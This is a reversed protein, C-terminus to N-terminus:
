VLKAKKKKILIISTVVGAIIVIVGIAIVVLFVNSNTMDIDGQIELYSSIEEQKIEGCITCTSTKIASETEPNEQTIVGESFRHGTHSLIDSESENCVKCLRIAIGDETCTAQKETQWADFNHGKFLITTTESESCIICKRINKGNKTCTVAEAIEWESFSHSHGDEALKAITKTEYKSCGNNTCNRQAEGTAKTTPEKITKWEGFVHGTQPINTLDKKSGCTLCHHSKSGTSTCSPEIDVTWESNYNHGKSSLIKEEVSSCIACTKIQKGDITCTVEKTTKWEGYSHGTAKIVTISSKSSCRSCHKSKSGETLCTAEKDITWNTSYNHGLEAVQETDTYNCNNCKREKSGKETCTPAKTQSWSSYNHGGVTREFSCRNCKSDCANDYIHSTSRASGCINCSSDCDNDYIHSTTRTSGCSNCTTDCDNDYRHAKRVNGCINCDSDCVNDYKHGNKECITFHWTANELYTNGSEIVIANKEALTGDYYVDKLSYCNQFANTNVNTLNKTITIKELKVCGSFASYGIVKSTLEVVKLQKCDKFTSTEVTGFRFYASEINTNDFAYETVCYVSYDRGYTLTAPISLHSATGVYGTVYAKSNVIQFQFGNHTYTTAAQVVIINSCITIIMIVTVFLSLIKKMFSRWFM